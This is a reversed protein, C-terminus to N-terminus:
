IRTDIDFEQGVYMVVKEFVGTQVDRFAEDDAKNYRPSDENWYSYRLGAELMQVRAVDVIAQAECQNELILEDPIGRALIERVLPYRREMAIAAVAQKLESPVSITKTM